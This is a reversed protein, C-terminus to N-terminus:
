IYRKAGYPIPCYSGPHETERRPLSRDFQVEIFPSQRGSRAVASMPVFCKKMLLKVTVKSMTSVHFLSRVAVHCFYDFILHFMDIWLCSMSLPVSLDESEQCMRGSYIIEFRTMVTCPGWLSFEMLKKFQEVIECRTLSWITQNLIGFEFVYIISTARVSSEGSERKRACTLFIHVYFEHSWASRFANGCYTTLYVDNTYLSGDIFLLPALLEGLESHTRVLLVLCYLFVDCRTNSTCVCYSAWGLLLTVITSLLPWSVCPCLTFVDIYM